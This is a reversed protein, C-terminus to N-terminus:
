YGKQDEGTEIDAKKTRPPRAIASEVLLDGTPQHIWAGTLVDYDCKDPRLDTPEHEYERANAILIHTSQAM